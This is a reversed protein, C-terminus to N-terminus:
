WLVPWGVTILCQAGVREDVLYAAETELTGQIRRTESTAAPCTIGSRRAVRGYDPLTLTASCAAWQILATRGLAREKIDGKLRRVVDPDFEREIRTRVSRPEALNQFLRDERGGAM